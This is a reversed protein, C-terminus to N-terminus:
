RNLCMHLALSGTCTPTPEELLPEQPYWLPILKHLIGARTFAQVMASLHMIDNDVFIFYDFMSATPIIGNAMLKIVSRGKNSSGIGGGSYVVSGYIIAPEEGGYHSLNVIHVDNPNLGSFGKQSQEQLPPLSEHLNDVSWRVCQKFIENDTLDEERLNQARLIHQVMPDQLNMGGYRSTLIFWTIDMDNLTQTVAITDTDRLPLNCGNAQSITNDWDLACVIREGTLENVIGLIQNINTISQVHLLAKQVRDPELDDM